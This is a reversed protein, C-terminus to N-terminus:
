AYFYITDYIYFSVMQLFIFQKYSTYFHILYYELLPLFSVNDHSSLIGYPPCSFTKDFINDILM